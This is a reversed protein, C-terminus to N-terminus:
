DVNPRLSKILGEISWLRLAELETSLLTKGDPLFMAVSTGKQRLAKLERGSKADWFVLNGGRETSLLFRGDASISLYNIWDDIKRTLPRPEKEPSELEFALIPLNWMGVFLTKETVAVASAPGDCQFSAKRKGTAVDWLHVKSYGLGATILFTGNGSFTLRTVFGRDIDLRHLIKGNGADCLRVSDFDAVALYKSDPSFSLAGGYNLGDMTWLLQDGALNWVRVFGNKGGISAAFLKNDAGFAIAEIVQKDDIGTVLLLDSKKESRVQWFQISGDLGAVAVRSGDPSFNYCRVNQRSVVLSAIPKLLQDKDGASSPTLLANCLVSSIFFTRVVLSM